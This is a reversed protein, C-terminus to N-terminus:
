KETGNKEIQEKLGEIQKELRKIQEEFIKVDKADLDFTVTKIIFAYVATAVLIHQTNVIDTVCFIIIFLPFILFMLKDVLKSQVARRSLHYDVTLSAIVATSFFLAPRETDIYSNEVNGMIFWLFLGSFATFVLWLFSKGLQPLFLLVKKKEVVHIFLVYLPSAIFLTFCIYPDVDLLALAGAIGGFITIVLALSQLLENSQIEKLLM